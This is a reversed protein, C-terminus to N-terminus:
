CICGLAHNPKILLGAPSFIVRHIQNMIDLCQKAGHLAEATAAHKAKRCDWALKKMVHKIMVAAM